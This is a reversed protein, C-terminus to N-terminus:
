SMLNMHSGHLLPRSNPCHCGSRSVVLVLDVFGVCGLLVRGVGGVVRTSCTGGGVLLLLLM